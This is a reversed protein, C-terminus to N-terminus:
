DYRREFSMEWEYCDFGEKRKTYEKHSDCFGCNMSKPTEYWNECNGCHAYITEIEGMAQECEQPERRPLSLARNRPLEDVQGM